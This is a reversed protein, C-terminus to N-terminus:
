ILCHNSIPRAFSSTKRQKGPLGAKPNSSPSFSINSSLSIKTGSPKASAKGTSKINRLM